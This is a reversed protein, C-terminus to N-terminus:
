KITNKRYWLFGKKDLFAREHIANETLETL